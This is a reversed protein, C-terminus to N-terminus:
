ASESTVATDPDLALYPDGLEALYGAWLARDGADGGTTLLVNIHRRAGAAQRLAAVFRKFARDPSAWPEAVIFVPTGDETLERARVLLAEDEAYDYGGASALPGERTTRFTERLLSDLDGVRFRADRWRVCLAPAADVVHSPAPVPQAGEGLPRLDAADSPRSRQVVPGRLRRELRDIEPTDLSVASLARRVGVHSGVLLLLRPLLAYVTVSMAVFPWWRGAGTGGRTGLEADAFAADLRSYQTAQLLAEDPCAAPWAWAWPAAARALVDALGEPTWNLTTAWSFALDSVSVTFLLNALAGVNFSVAVVQLTRLVLFREVGGYLGQRSRAYGLARRLAAAREPSRQSFVRALLAGLNRVGARVLDLLPIGEYANPSVRLVLLSVLTGAVLAVQSGVLVVLVTLVNVPHEGTYRFLGTAVGWGAACMGVSLLATAVSLGREWTAGLEGYERRERTVRLWVRLLDRRAAPLAERRVRAADAELLEREAEADQRLAVELDVLEGFRLAPSDAETTM